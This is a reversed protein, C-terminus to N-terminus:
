GKRVGFGCTVSRAYFRHGDFEHWPIKAKSILGGYTAYLMVKWDIKEFVSRVASISMRFYDDPHSHVRWNFPVTVYLTAGKSMLRELNAALLWPRKAHELVSTCEVHDFKGLDQAQELDAVVDVGPGPRMDIGVVDRYRSRRDEKNATIYSGVILTRGVKPEVYLREFDAVAAVM